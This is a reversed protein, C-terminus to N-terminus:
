VRQVHEYDKDSIKTLNKLNDFDSKQPCTEQKLWGMSNIADYPYFGKGHILEKQEETEGIENLMTRNEKPISAILGGLSSKLFAFSDIVRYSGFSFTKFKQSNNPLVNINKFEDCAHEFFLSSDFNANHFLPIKVKKPNM